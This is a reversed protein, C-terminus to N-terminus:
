DNRSVSLNGLPFYLIIQSKTQLSTSILLSFIFDFPSSIYSFINSLHFDYPNVETTFHFFIHKKNKKILM